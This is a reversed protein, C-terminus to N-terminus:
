RCAVGFEGNSYGNISGTYDVCQGPAYVYKPGAYTTYNGSDELWSGGSIRISATMPEAAGPSNRVTVVCNEGTASSYALWVTGGTMDMHRIGVYGSGCAGDYSAANAATPVAVAAGATLAAIVGVRATIQKIRKNM